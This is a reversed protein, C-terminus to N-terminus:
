KMGLQAQQAIAFQFQRLVEDVVKKVLDSV